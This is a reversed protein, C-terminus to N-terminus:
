RAVPLGEPAGGPRPTGENFAPTFVSRLDDRGSIGLKRYVNSLHFEVTSSALRLRDAMEKNGLGAQALNMVERERATLRKGVDSAVWRRTADDVRTVWVESGLECATVRAEDLFARADDLQGDLAMKLGFEYCARMLTGRAPSCRLHGIAERLTEFDEGDGSVLAAARLSSGIVRSTGWSRASLLEDDALSHALSRREIAAACLAAHSRWNSVAPNTVGWEALFRGAAVFDEYASHPHGMAERLSGRAAFIVSRDVAEELGHGFGFTFLLNEGRDLEGLDVLAHVSWAVAVEVFQPFIGHQLADDLLRVAVRPEGGQLAVMARLVIMASRHPHSADWGSRKLARDLQDRVSDLEEAYLLALVAYWFTGLDEWAFSEMARHAADVAAQREGCRNVQLIASTAALRSPQIPGRVPRCHYEAQPTGAVYVLKEFDCGTVKPSGASLAKRLASLVTEGAESWRGMRDLRVREARAEELSHLITAVDDTEYQERLLRTNTEESIKRGTASM